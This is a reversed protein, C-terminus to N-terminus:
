LRQLLPLLLVFFLIIALDKDNLSVLYILITDIQITSYLQDYYLRGSIDWYKGEEVGYVITAMVVLAALLFFYKWRHKIIHQVIKNQLIKDKLSQKENNSESM